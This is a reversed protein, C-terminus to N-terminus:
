GVYEWIVQDTCDTVSCKQQV